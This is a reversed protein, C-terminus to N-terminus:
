DHRSAEPRGAIQSGVEAQKKLAAMVAPMDIHVQRRVLAQPLFLGGNIYASYTVQTQRGGEVPELKWYGDVEKFDGRIRHWELAKAPTEKLEIVYQYTGLLGSPQVKHEVIKILGHDELVRCKLLHPFVSPANEYDTLIKYVQEPKARVVMRGVQYTKNGQVEDVVDFRNGISPLAGGSAVAAQEPVMIPLSFALMACCSACLATAARRIPTVKFLGKQKDSM